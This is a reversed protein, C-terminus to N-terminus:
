RSGRHFFKDIMFLAASKVGVILGITMIGFVIPWIMWCGNM